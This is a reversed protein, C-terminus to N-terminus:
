SSPGVGLTELVATGGDLVGGVTGEQDDAGPPTTHPDDTLRVDRCGYGDVAVGTLDGEHSYVVMWRPGLDATCEREDDAPALDDLADELGAVAVPEPQGARRWGHVTEGGSTTGAAFTDYQCVWAEHPKLLTPREEAAESSGFGYGSADDGIPLRMPCPRGDADTLESPHVDPDDAVPTSPWPLGCGALVLGASAVGLLAGARHARSGARRPDDVSATTTPSPM